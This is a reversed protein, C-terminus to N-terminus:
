ARQSGWPVRGAGVAQCRRPPRDVAMARVITLVALSLVDIKLSPQGVNEAPDGVM